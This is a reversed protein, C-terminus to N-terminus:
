ESPDLQVSLSRWGTLGPSFAYAQMVAAGTTAHETSALILGLMAAPLGQHFQELWMRYIKLAHDDPTLREGPRLVRHCWLGPCVTPDLSAAASLYGNQWGRLYPEDRRASLQLQTVVLLHNFIPALFLGPGVFTGPPVRTMGDVVRRWHKLVSATVLLQSPVNFGLKPPRKTTVVSPAQSHVWCM